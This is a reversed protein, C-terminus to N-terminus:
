IVWAINKILKDKDFYKDDVYHEIVDINSRALM